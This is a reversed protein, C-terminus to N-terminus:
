NRGQIGAALLRAALASDIQVVRGERRVAGAQILRVADVYLAHEIPLLREALEEASEGARVELPAQLLIPGSDMGADVFHVTAGTVRVGADIAQRQANLGRFAPLLSPHVNLIPIHARELFPASLLRMFGCLAVLDPRDGAVITALNREAEPSLRAGLEFPELVSAPTGRKQARGLVPAGPDDSVVRVVDGEIRGNRTAEILNV